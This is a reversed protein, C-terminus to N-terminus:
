EPLIHARAHGKVGGKMGSSRWRSKVCSVVLPLLSLFLIGMIVGHLHAHVGPVNGLLFGGFLFGARGCCCACADVCEVPLVCM